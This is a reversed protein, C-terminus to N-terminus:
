PAVASRCDQAAPKGQQWARLKKGLSPSRTARPPWVSPWARGARAEEQRDLEALREARTAEVADIKAQVEGEIRASRLNM